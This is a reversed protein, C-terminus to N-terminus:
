TPMGWRTFLKAKQGAEPVLTIATDRELSFRELTIIDCRATRTTNQLTDTVCDKINDKEEQFLHSAIRSNSENHQSAVVVCQVWIPLYALTLLHLTKM